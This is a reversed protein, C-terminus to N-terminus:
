VIIDFLLPVISAARGVIGVHKFRAGAPARTFASSGAAGKFDAKYRRL